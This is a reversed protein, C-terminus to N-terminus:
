SMQEWLRPFLRMSSVGHTGLVRPIQGFRMIIINNNIIIIIMVIINIIIISISIIVLKLILRQMQMTKMPRKMILLRPLLHIFVRRVWPSMSHTQLM